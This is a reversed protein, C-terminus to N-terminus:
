AHVPKHYRVHEKLRRFGVSEYLHWARHRSVAGTHLRAARAGQDRLARLGEILLARGVGRRRFPAGVFLEDVEGRGRTLRCLAAGAVDGGHWAARWGTPDAAAAFRRYDDESPVGAPSSDTHDAGAVEWMLQYVPRYQEPTVPRIRFGEPVAAAPLVRLDDLGFEVVRFAERYGEASLLAAAERETTSANAGFVAPGSAPHGAALARIRGEAWRLLARGLGRGRWDPLVPAEHLYLRTGDAETWWVINAYGVVRGGAEALLVNQQPDSRPPLSRGLEEPTPLAECTSLPDVEDRRARGAHVAAMAPLDSPGRFPRFTLGPWAPAAPFGLGDM